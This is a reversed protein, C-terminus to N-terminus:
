KRRRLLLAAGGLLALAIVSPEPVLSFSAMGQLAPPTTPPVASPDGLKAGLTFVAGAGKISAAAYTAGTTTDWARVQMFPTTGGAQGALVVTGGLFLGAASPTTSFTTTAVPTLSSASSGVLLEAKYKDGALKTTKDVNTIPANLGPGVNSFNVTGQGFTGVSVLVSAVVILIKKM